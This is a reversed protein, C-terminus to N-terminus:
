KNIVKNLDFMPRDEYVKECSCKIDDVLSEAYGMPDNMCKTAKDPLEQIESYMFWLIFVVVIAFGLTFYIKTKSSKQSKEM